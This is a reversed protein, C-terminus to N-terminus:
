SFTMRHCLMRSQLLIEEYAILITITVYMQSKALKEPLIITAYSTELVLIVDDSTRNNVISSGCFICSNNWQYQKQTLHHLLYLHFLITSDTLKKQRKTHNRRTTGNKLIFNLWINRIYWAVVSTRLFINKM